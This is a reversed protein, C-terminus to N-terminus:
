DDTSEQEHLIQRLAERDKADAFLTAGTTM